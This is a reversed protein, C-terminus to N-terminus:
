QYGFKVTWLPIYQAGTSYNLISQYLSYRDAELEKTNNYLELEYKRFAETDFTQKVRGFTIHPVFPRKETKINYNRLLTDTQEKLKLIEDNTEFKIGVVTPKQQHYFVLNKNFKLKIESLSAFLPHCQQILIRAVNEEVEGIFTVTIHLQEPHVWKIKGALGLQQKANNFFVNLQQSDKLTIAFFLRIM